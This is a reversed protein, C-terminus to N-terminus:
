EYQGDKAGAESRRYRRPAEERAGWKMLLLLLRRLWGFGDIVRGGGEVVLAGMSDSWWGERHDVGGCAGCFLGNGVDEVVRRRGTELRVFLLFFNLHNEKKENFRM